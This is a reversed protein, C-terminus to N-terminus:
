VRPFGEAVIISTKPCLASQPSVPCAHAKRNLNEWDKALQPLSQALSREIIWRKPLVAFGKAHDYQRVNETELHPLIKAL